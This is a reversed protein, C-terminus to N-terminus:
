ITGLAVAGSRRRIGAVKAGYLHLAQYKKAFRDEATVVRNESWKYAFTIFSRHNGLIQYARSGATLTADGGNGTCASHDLRSSVRAGAAVHIDFGACRGVKGNLIVTEYAMSIAPQLEAAQRLLTVVEPTVTVHRDDEPIENSDLKEALLTMVEYINTSTLATARAAQLEWGWGGETTPKGDGNIAGGTFRFDGYLGRLVDGNPIDMAETAADWNEITATQSNTVGNIRYWPTAWSTGSTLRVPKGIDGTEFGIYDLTGDGHELAGVQGGSVILGQVTLTGGTATTAISAETDRSSGVVRVDIGIWSGAKALAAQELVYRDVEREISKASSEVLSDPGDDVYTFLDELKDIEFNTYKRKEVVLQDEMDYVEYLSMDSHSTYDALQMDGPFSLINVRDGAKKIEGEYNPNTISPSVANQYFRKLVKAAFKEGFDNLAM